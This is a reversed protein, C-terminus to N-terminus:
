VSLVPIQSHRIIAYGAGNAGLHGGAPLHGIVLLDSKAQSAARNLLELVNGSDIIVEADTGVDQQLKAIETVAASVIAEKWEPVVHPGGPGYTEVGATIHILTLRAGFETAIRAASSLTPRSHASLDVACLVNRIAVPGASAPGV